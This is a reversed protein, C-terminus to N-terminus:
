CFTGHTVLSANGNRRLSRLANESTDSISRYKCCNQMNAMDRFNSKERRTRFSGFNAFFRGTHRFMVLFLVRHAMQSVSSRVKFNLTRLQGAGHGTLEVNGSMDSISRIKRQGSTVPCPPRPKKRGGKGVRFFTTSFLRLRRHHRNLSEWSVRFVSIIRLFIRCAPRGAM